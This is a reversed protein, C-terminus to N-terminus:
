KSLILLAHCEHKNYNHTLEGALKKAYLLADQLHLNLKDMCLLAKGVILKNIVSIIKVNLEKRSLELLETEWYFDDSSIGVEISGDKYSNVKIKVILDDHQHKTNM